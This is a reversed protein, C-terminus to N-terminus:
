NNYYPKWKVEFILYEDDNIEELIFIQKYLSNPNFVYKMGNNKCNEYFEEINVIKLSKLSDKNISEICSNKIIEFRQESIYFNGKNYYSERSHNEEKTKNFLIHIKDVQQSFCFYSNTILIILFKTLSM